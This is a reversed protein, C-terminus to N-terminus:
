TEVCVKSFVVIPNPKEVKKREQPKIPSETVKTGASFTTMSVELFYYSNEKNILQDHFVDEPLFPSSMVLPVLVM